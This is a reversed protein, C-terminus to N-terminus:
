FTGSLAMGYSGSGTPMLPAMSIGFFDHVQTLDGHQYHELSRMARTPRTLIQIESIIVGITTDEAAAEGRKLAYALVLGIALNSGLTLLQSSFSRASRENEAAHALLKEAQALVACESDSQSPHALLAELRKHDRITLLPQIMSTIAGLTSTASNYSSERIKGPKDDAFPYLFWTAGALGVYTLSWGLAYRKELQATERLSDRVYRLRDAAAKESLAPSAGSPTACEGASAYGVRLQACLSFLTLVVVSRKM